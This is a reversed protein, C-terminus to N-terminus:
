GPTVAPTPAAPVNARARVASAQGGLPLVLKFSGSHSTVRGNFEAEYGIGVDVPGIRGGVNVGAFLSGRKQASSVMDFGAATDGDLFANVRSRQNGFGHRYGLNFEHLVGGFQTAWKVGAALAGHTSKSSSVTLGAAGGNLETFGDLTASVYDFNLYPKVVSRGGLAFRAGGHLGFTWMNADPRGTPNAAFSAGPALAGFDIHRTSHGKLSSYSALAKLFFAGPDYLAYAGATWGNGKVSDGFQSDRLDNRISGADAGVIGSEGLRADIGLLMASRKSSNAGAESDGDAKRSQYGLQGWVHVPGSRCDLTSGLLPAADCSTAEDVLDNQRVGLSPFSNLYNAYASGSLQNLAADYGSTQSILFLNGFMQALGGKLSSSYIAELGTGVASGNGNLGAVQNFRVRTLLLDVNQKSDNNCAFKLLVSGAHVGGLSCQQFAGNRVNLDVVNDWAYSDDFLGTATAVNAVLTGNLNAANAFVQSYSGAAQAGATVPQLELTLTGGAAVNLTDLLAYSPGSPMAAPATRPGALVLNGGPGINLTAVGALGSDLAAAGIGGAPLYAPNVIGDFYTTGSQVNVQDGAQVGINGYITGNGFLNIVSPNSAQSVDIAMGRQWSKGDDTSQRAIITGGDNTFTFLDSPRPPLSPAASTIVRVGNASAPGGHGAIAEVDITGSNTLTLNNRTASIAIGTATAGVTGSHASNVKASVNIKGANVVSGGLAGAAATVSSHNMALIGIGVASAVASGAAGSGLAAAHAALAGSNTIDAIVNAADVQYAKASALAFASDGGIASANAVVDIQGENDLVAKLTGFSPDQVIGRALAGAFSIGGSVAKSDAGISVVGSNVMSATATGISFPEQELGGALAVNSALGSQATGHAFAEIAVKGSNLIGLHASSAGEAAQVAGSAAAHVFETAGSATAIAGVAFTGSNDFDANAIRARASQVGGQEDVVVVAEKGAKASGSGEVDLLGSNSFQLVAEGTFFRQFEGTVGSPSFNLSTFAAAASAHQGFGDANVRVFANQPGAATAAARIAISGKNDLLENASFGLANQGIGGAQADASASGTGSGVPVADTALAHANAVMSIAGSNTLSVEAPGAGGKFHRFHLASSSATASSLSREASALQIMGQASAVAAAFQGATAIASAFGDFHGENDVSALADNGIAGQFIGLDDAFAVAQSGASAVARAAISLTGVNAFSVTSPGNPQFSFGQHAGSGATTFSSKAATATQQLGRVSAFGGARGASSGAVADAGASLAISGDNTVALMAAGAEASAHQHIGTRVNASAIAFHSGDAVASASFGISGKNDLAVSAAGGTASVQLASQYIGFLINASASASTGAANADATAALTGSNDLTVSSEDRAYGFQDLAIPIYSFAKAAGTGNAADAIAEITISGENDARMVLHGSEPPTGIAIGIQDIAGSDPSGVSASANSTGQVTVGFVDDDGIASITLTDDVNEGTITHDIGPVTSARAPAALGLASLSAGTLLVLRRHALNM